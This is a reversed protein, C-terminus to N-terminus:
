EGNSHLPFKQFLELFAKEQQTQPRHKEYLAYLTYSMPNLEPLVAKLLRDNSALYDPCLGVGIGEKVLTAVVIWSSVRMFIPLDKGYLAKYNAKLINTEVREESDLLFRLEKRDDLFHSAYLRYQGQHIPYCDFASLDDNDVLFGFDIMGKRIWDKIAYYQGLRFQIQIKPLLKNALNLYRPLCTLAFSHTCGFTISGQESDKLEEEAKQIAKFIHQAHLFLKKGSETLKFRNPQHSILVTGLAAELKVIGQSVASQTVFNMKASRSISEYKAADCFYKLYTMNYPIKKM